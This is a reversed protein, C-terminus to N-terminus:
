ARIEISQALADLPLLSPTFDNPKAANVKASVQQLYLNFSGDDVDKPFPVGGAPLPSAPNSDAPLFPAHVPMKVSIYYGGDSSLGVYYYFINNNNVPFYDMFVQTLYRVGMGHTSPLKYIQACFRSILLGAPVPDNPRSQLRRLGAIIDDTLGSFAAFEDAHFIIIEPAVDSAKVAYGHLTVVWHEPLPGVSPNVYPWEERTTTELTASRALGSPIVLKVVGLTVEIDAAPTAASVRTPTASPPETMAETKTKTKSPTVTTSITRTFTKTDPIKTETSTPPAPTDTFAATAPLPTDAGAVTAPPIGCAALVGASLIWGLLCLCKKM